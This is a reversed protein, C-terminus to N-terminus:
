QLDIQIIDIKRSELQCDALNLPFSKGSITFRTYGFSSGDRPVELGTGEGKFGVLPM